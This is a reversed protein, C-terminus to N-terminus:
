PPNSFTLGPPVTSSRATFASSDETEIRRPERYGVAANHIVADFAGLANVQEAVGRTQTMSSLDGTVV